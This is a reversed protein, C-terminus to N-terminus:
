PKIETGYSLHKGKVECHNLFCLCPIATRVGKKLSLADGEKKIELEVYGSM